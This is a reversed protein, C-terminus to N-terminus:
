YFLNNKTTTAILLKICVNPLESSPFYNIQSIYDTIKFILDFAINKSIELRYTVPGQRLTIERSSVFDMHGHEM